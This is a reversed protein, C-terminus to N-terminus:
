DPQATKAAEVFARVQAADKIGPSREVGSSVDVWAPSATRVADAVNDPTLGGAVVIPPWDQLLGSDHMDRLLSWDWAEGTGGFRKGSGSDVLVMTPRCDGFQALWDGTGALQEQQEVHRVAVTQLGYDHLRQVM